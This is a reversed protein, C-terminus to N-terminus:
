ERTQGAGKKTQKGQAPERLDHRSQWGDAETDRGAEETALMTREEEQIWEELVIAKDDPNLVPHVLTNRKQRIRKLRGFMEGSLGWDRLVEERCKMYIQTTLEREVEIFRVKVDETMANRPDHKNFVIKEEQRSDRIRQCLAKKSRQYIENKIDSYIEALSLIKQFNDM